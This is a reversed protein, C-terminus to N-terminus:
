RTRTPRLMPPAPDMSVDEFGPPPQIPEDLSHISGPARSWQLAVWVQAQVHNPSWVPHFTVSVRVGGNGGTRFWVKDSDPLPGLTSAQEELGLDSINASGCIARAREIAQPVPETVGFLEALYLLNGPIVGFEGRGIDIDFSRGDPLVIRLRVPGVQVKSRELGPIRKPRLGADFLLKLDGGQRLDIATREVGGAAVARVTVAIVVIVLRSFQCM